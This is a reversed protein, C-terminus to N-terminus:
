AIRRRIERISEVADRGLKADEVYRSLVLVSAETGVEALRQILESEIPRYPAGVRGFLSTLRTSNGLGFELLERVRDPFDAFLKKGPHDQSASARTSDWIRLLADVAEFAFESRLRDWLPDCKNNAEAGTPCRHQWFTIEGLLQWSKREPTSLDSLQVPAERLTALGCHAWLFASVTKQICMSNIEIHSAWRIYAPEASQEGSRVLDHLIWDADFAHEPAGLAAMTLLRARDPMKFSYFADYYTNQFVEEFLKSWASYAGQQADLDDPNELAARFEATANEISVIPEILGFADMAEVIATNLFLNNTQLQGLWDKVDDHVTGELTSALQQALTVAELRVHYVKTRWCAKLFEPIAEPNKVSDSRLLLCLVYLIVPSPNETAAENKALALIDNGRVSEHLRSRHTTIMRNVPLVSGGKLSGLVFLSQFAESRSPRSEAVSSALVEKCAHETCRALRLVRELIWSECLALGMADLLAVEYETWEPIGTVSMTWLSTPNVESDVALNDLCREARALLELCDVRAVSFAKDGLEGHIASLLLGADPVARLVSRVAENSGLLGIVHDAVRRNKPVRIQECVVLIDKADNIIHEAILIGALLEHRFACQGRAVDLIGIRLLDDGLSASAGERTIVSEIIQWADILTLSEAFQENMEWAIARLCRRAVAPSRTRELQRRLYTDLLQSRTATAPLQECCSAALSIEYPTRFATCTVRTSSDGQTTAYSTFVSIAEADNLKRFSIIPGRLEMPMEINSQTTFVVAMKWRLYLAQVNELLQKQLDQRCENFGDVILSLPIGLRTAAAYLHSAPNPHYPAVARDLLSRLEGQYEKASIFIPVRGAAAARLGAHKAHHSKGCGSPGTLQAHIGESLLGALIDSPQANGDRDITTPVLEHLNCGVLNQFRALYAKISDEAAVVEGSRADDDEACYLNLRMAFKRWDDARWLHDTSGTRYRQLFEDFGVVRVRHDGPFNSGPHLRPFICVVSEFLKYFPTGGPPTPLAEKAAAERMDDSIAYKCELAQRYPNERHDLPKTTGNPQRISWAGNLGGIIPGTLHKLEVHWVRSNVVILFDTQRKKAAIFNAFVVAGVGRAQLDSRLRALFQQESDIEIPAGLYLEFTPNMSQRGKPFREECGGVKSGELKNCGPLETLVMLYDKRYTTAGGTAGEL